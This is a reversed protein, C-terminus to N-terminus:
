RRRVSYYCWYNQWVARRGLQEDWLIEVTGEKEIVAVFLAM